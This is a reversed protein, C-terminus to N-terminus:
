RDGNAAAVERFLAEYRDVAVEAAFARAREVRPGPPGPDVLAATIAEAMAADDGVPVMRGHAGDGLIEAPGDCATAVVPLGHALAEVVVNGFAEARSSSVYCAAQRYFHWPQEVHGALHARDKLGLRAIEAEIAGREPGEGVIVLRAEAPLRAFARVLTPFDKAPVLRGVALILSGRAALERADQAPVAAAIEVPNYICHTRAAGCARVYHDRLGESVFVSRATLRSLLPTARNGLRSLREPESQPHGHFSILAHRRRGAGIAALGHKLNSVGLASISIDPRAAALHRRLGLVARAHGRGLRLLTVGPIPRADEEHDYAFTVAHGRAALKGALSAWVREAGGGTTAHTYFLIRLPRSM